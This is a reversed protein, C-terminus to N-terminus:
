RWGRNAEAGRFRCGAELQLAYGRLVGLHVFTKQKKKEFLLRKSEQRKGAAWQGNSANQVDPKPIV